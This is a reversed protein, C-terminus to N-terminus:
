GTVPQKSELYKRLVEDWEERSFDHHCITCYLGSSDQPCEISAPLHWYHVKGQCYPCPIVLDISRNDPM